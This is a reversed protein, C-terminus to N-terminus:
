NRRGHRVVQGNRHVFDAFHSAGGHVQNRGVIRCEGPPRHYLGDGRGFEPTAQVFGQGLGAAIEVTQEFGDAVHDECEAAVVAVRTEKSIYGRGSCGNSGHPAQNGRGEVHVDGAPSAARRGGFQFKQGHAPELFHQAVGRMRRAKQHAATGHRVEGAQGRGTAGLRRGVHHAIAHRRGARAHAHVDGFLAVERDPFGGGHQPNARGVHSGYFGIPPQAHVKGIQIAHDAFVAGRTM